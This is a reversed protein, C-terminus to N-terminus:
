LHRAKGSVRLKDSVTLLDVPKGESLLTGMAEFVIKNAPMYFADVSLHKEICMDLVTTADIFISGLVGTEAEESHPPVRDEFM